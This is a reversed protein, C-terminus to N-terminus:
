FISLYENVVTPSDISAITNIVNMKVKLSNIIRQEVNDNGGHLLTNKGYIFKIITNSQSDLRLFRYNLQHFEMSLYNPSVFVFRPRTGFKDDLDIGTSICLLNCILLRVDNNDEQFKSIITNRNKATVKGNLVKPNFISLLVAMKNIMETYNLCVVIKSNPNDDLANIIVNAFVMLKSLEINILSRQIAIKKKGISLGDDNMLTTLSQISNNYLELNESDIDFFSNYVILKFIDDRKIM